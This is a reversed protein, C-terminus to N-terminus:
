AVLKKLLENQEQALLLAKKVRAKLDRIYSLDSYIYYITTDASYADHIANYGERADQFYQEKTKM